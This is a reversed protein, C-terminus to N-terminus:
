LLSEAVSYAQAVPQDMRVRVRRRLPWCSLPPASFPGMLRLAKGRSLTGSALGRALDDFSHDRAEPSM